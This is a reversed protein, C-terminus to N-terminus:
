QEDFDGGLATRLKARADRLLNRVTSAPKKVLKAIEETKYGEYYFLIVVEKYKAPLAKVAELVDGDTDKEEAAIDEHDAIDKPKKRWWHKLRDKCINSATVTLWVREHDEGNFTMGTSIIKLFADETCDEADQQNQMYIYCVRYIATYNRKYLENFGQPIASM